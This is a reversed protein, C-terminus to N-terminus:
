QELEEATPVTFLFCAGGGPHNEAWLKGGHAEIITRSISLGMGMGKPKTTFFPEFLRAADTAAIGRGSDTVAIKVSAPDESRATVVISRGQRSSEEISDMGNSVLNLLVQQLHIRDGAIRPVDEIIKVDLKVRRAAAEPRLLAAVDGLLEDVHLPRMQVEQRKLLARMRDIVAGARQDDKRIDDIIARIEELDPSEQQLFLAAAEANRLIAGLPQNIEHALAMALEGVVSVRGVHAIEQRLLLTEQESLKRATCDISAGRARIARGHTNFEAQGQSAIWRIGGDPLQVRFEGQHVGPSSTTATVLRRVRDRDDPHVKQLVKEATILEAQSFGLLERWKTNAWIEEHALDRSWVGLNAARAALTMRQESEGLEAALQRAHLLDRSLEYAMVGVIPLLFLSTTVPMPVGLWVILLAQAASALLCVVTSGGIRLAKDRAGQRWATMMADAVFLICLWLGLHPVIMWPNPVATPIPVREGLFPVFDLQSVELFNVNVGTTFNPVLSLTRLGVVTWALWARGTGLHTHTFGVMSVIVLWIPLHGWRLISALETTTRAHMLMAECLVMGATGVCMLSFFLSPRAARDHLWIPLHIAALTLCAAALMSWIVVIWNM